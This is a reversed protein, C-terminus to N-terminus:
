SHSENLFDSLTQLKNGQRKSAKIESLGEQIAVFVKLKSQLKHYDENIKEWKDFPVIVSTKIDRDDVIYLMTNRM